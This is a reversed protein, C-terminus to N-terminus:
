WGIIIKEITRCNMRMSTEKKEFPFSSFIEALNEDVLLHQSKKIRGTEIHSYNM